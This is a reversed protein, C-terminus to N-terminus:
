PRPSYTSQIELLNTGYLLDLFQILAAAFSIILAIFSVPYKHYFTQGTLCKYKFRRWFWWYCYVNNPPEVDGKLPFDIRTNFRGETSLIYDAAVGAVYNTAEDRITDPHPLGHKTDTVIINHGTVLIHYTRIIEYAPNLEHAKCRITNLYAWWVIGKRWWKSIKCMFFAAMQPLEFKHTKSDTM